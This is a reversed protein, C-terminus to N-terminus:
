GLQSEGLRHHRRHQGHVAVTTGHLLFRHRFLQVILRSAMHMCLGCFGTFTFTATCASADPNIDTDAYAHSGDYALPWQAEAWEGQYSISTNTDDVTINYDGYVTNSFFLFGALFIIFIM